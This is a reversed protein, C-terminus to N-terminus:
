SRLGSLAEKVTATDVGYTTAVRRLRRATATPKLKLERATKMVEAPVTVTEATGIAILKVWKRGEKAVLYIRWGCGVKPHDLYLSVKRM